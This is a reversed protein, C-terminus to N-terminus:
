LVVLKRGISYTVALHLTSAEQALRPLDRSVRGPRRGSALLGWRPRTDAM